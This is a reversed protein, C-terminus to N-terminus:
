RYMTILRLSFSGANLRGVGQIIQYVFAYWCLSLMDLFLVMTLMNTCKIQCIIDMSPTKSPLIVRCQCLKM